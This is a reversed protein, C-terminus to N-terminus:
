SLEKIANLIVRQRIKWNGRPWLYGHDEKGQKTLEPYDEIEIEYDSPKLLDLAACIGLPLDHWSLDYPNEGKLGEAIFYLDWYIALRESPTM